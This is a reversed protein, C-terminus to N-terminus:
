DSTASCEHNSICIYSSQELISLSFCEGHDFASFRKQIARLTEFDDDEGDSPSSFTALSKFADFPVSFRNQLSRVLQLDDDSDSDTSADRGSTCAAAIDTGTLMCARRLAEMDEDFLSGETESGSLEEDDKEGVLGCSM